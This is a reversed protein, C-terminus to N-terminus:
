KSKYRRNIKEVQVDHDVAIVVLSLLGIGALRISRDDKKSRTELHQDLGKLRKLTRIDEQKIEDKRITGCFMASWNKIKFFNPKDSSFINSFSFVISLFLLKKFM